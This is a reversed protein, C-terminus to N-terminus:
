LLFAREIKESQLALMQEWCSTNLISLFIKLIFIGMMRRGSHVSCMRADERDKGRGNNRSVCIKIQRLQLINTGPCCTWADQIVLEEM